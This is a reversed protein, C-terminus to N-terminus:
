TFNKNLNLFLPRTKRQRLRLTYGLRKCFLFLMASLNTCINELKKINCKENTEM